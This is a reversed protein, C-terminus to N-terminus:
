FSCPGPSINAHFLVFFLLVTPCTHSTGISLLTFRVTIKPALPDLGGSKATPSPGWKRLGGLWFNQRWFSTFWASYLSHLKHLPWVSNLKNCMRILVVLMLYTNMHLVVSWFKCFWSLKCVISCVTSLFYLTRLPRHWPVTYRTRCTGLCWRLVSM